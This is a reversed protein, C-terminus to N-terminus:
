KENIEKSCDIKLNKCNYFSDYRINQVSEPIKIYALKKCNIISKPEITKLNKPLIITQLRAFNVITKSSLIEIDDNLSIITTTNKNLYKIHNLDCIFQTCSIGDFFGKEIKNISKDIIIFKTKIYKLPNYNNVSKLERVGEPIIYNDLNIGIFYKLLLPSCILRKLNKLYIYSGIIKRVTLPIVLKELNTFKKFLNLNLETITDNLAIARIKDKNFDNIWEM